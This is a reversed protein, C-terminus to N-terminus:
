RRIRLRNKGAHKAQYLAEDARAFVDRYFADGAHTPTAGISLTPRLSKGPNGVLAIRAVSRKMHALKRVAVELNINKLFVVFEDGGVRGVVDYERCSSSLVSGVQQLLEDGRLHGFTDNVNKFNDIDVVACVSHACVHPDSLAADILSRTSANNSLGTIADHEALVRLEREAQINEILGVLHWAGGEDHAVFLNARYWQYGSGYYDARYEIIENKTGARAREFMARVTDMSDPHVVGERTSSLTELYAPIMQAEMGNGTRDIYLLVTDSESNYDFSITHTLESLMRYRENQWASERRERVEESIDTVVAYIRVIGSERQVTRGQIRATFPEGKRDFEREVTFSSWRDDYQELFSRAEGPEVVSSRVMIAEDDRLDVGM